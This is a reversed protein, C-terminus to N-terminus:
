RPPEVAAELWDLYDEAGGAIPTWLLEPLEYPHAERLFATLAAAAAAVTKAELRFESAEEVRDKWRYVSRVPVIHVCAALRNKVIASALRRADAETEVTTTVIGFANEARKVM